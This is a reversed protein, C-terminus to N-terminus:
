SLVEDVAEKVAKVVTQMQEDTLDYYVPLSIECKYNNYAQPYDSMKYGLGNYFSLLPLPQFHVNVSVEKGNIRRIIENRQEESVNKVRLTYVHYSTRKDATEYVPLVFRADDKFQSTYFDFIKKRKVLTDDDYRALEVLGM